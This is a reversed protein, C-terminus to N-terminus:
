GSIIWIDAIRLTFTKMVRIGIKLNTLGDEKKMHIVSGSVLLQCRGPKEGDGFPLLIDHGVEM